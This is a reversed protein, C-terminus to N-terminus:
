GDPAVPGNYGEPTCPHVPSSASDKPDTKAQPETDTMGFRAYFWARTANAEIAERSRM